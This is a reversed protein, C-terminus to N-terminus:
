RKSRLAMMEDLLDALEDQDETEEMARKIQALREQDPTPIPRTIPGTESIPDPDPETEPEPAKPVIKEGIAVGRESDFRLSIREEPAFLSAVRPSHTTAFIQGPRDSYLDHFFQM